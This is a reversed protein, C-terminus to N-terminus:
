YSACKICFTQQPTQPAVAYSSSPNTFQFRLTCTKTPAAARAAAALKGTAACAGVGAAGPIGTFGDSTPSVDSTAFSACPQSASRIRTLVVFGGPFSCTAAFYIAPISSFSPIVASIRSSVGPRLATTALSRLAATALGALASSKTACMSTTATSLDLHVTSGNPPTILSPYRYPRPAMSSLPISAAFRAANTAKFRALRRRFRSTMKRAVASSSFPPSAFMLNQDPFVPVLKRGPKRDILASVNEDHLPFYLIYSNLGALFDRSIYVHNRPSLGPVGRLRRFVVCDHVQPRGHAFDSRIGRGDVQRRNHPSIEFPQRRQLVVFDSLPHPREIRCVAALVRLSHKRVGAREPVGHQSIRNRGRNQSRPYRVVHYRPFRM